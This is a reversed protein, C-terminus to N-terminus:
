GFTSLGGPVGTNKVPQGKVLNAAVRHLLDYVAGLLHKGLPFKTGDNLLEAMGQYNSTPGVTKGCFIFKDLWMNLFAVHERPQVSNNKMHDTIYGTWGHSEKTKM